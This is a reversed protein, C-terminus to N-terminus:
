PFILPSSSGAILDKRDGGINGIIGIAGLNYWKDYLEKVLRQSEEREVPGWLDQVGQPYPSYKITVKASAM